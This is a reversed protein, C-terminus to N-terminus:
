RGQLPITYKVQGDKDTLNTVGASTFTKGDYELEYIGQQGPALTAPNVAVSRTEAPEDGSRRLTIEVALGELPQDSTNYVAGRIKVMNKNVEPKLSPLIRARPREVAPQQPPPAQGRSRIRAVTDNVKSNVSPVFLYALTSGAVLLVALALAITGAHGARPGTDQGYSTLSGIGLDEKSRQTEGFVLPKSSAEPPLNLVSGAVKRESVRTAKVPIMAPEVEPTEPSREEYWGEKKEVVAPEAEAVSDERDFGSLTATPRSLPGTTRPKALQQGPLMPEISPPEFPKREEVAPEIRPPEFPARPSSGDVRASPLPEIESAPSGLMTTGTQEPPMQEITETEAQPPLQPEAEELRAWVDEDFPITEGTQSAAYEIQESSLVQTATPEVPPASEPTQENVIPEAVPQLVAPEPQSVPQPEPAPEPLHESRSDAEEYSIAPAREEQAEIAESTRAEIPEAEEVRELAAPKEELNEKAPAPENVFLSHQSLSWDEETEKEGRKFRTYFYVFMAIAALLVIVVAAWIFWPVGGLQLLLAISLLTLLM